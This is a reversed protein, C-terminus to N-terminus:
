YTYHTTTYTKGCKLSLIQFKKPPKHPSISGNKEFIESNEVILMKILM